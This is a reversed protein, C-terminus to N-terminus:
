AGGEMMENANQTQLTIAARHFILRNIIGAASKMLRRSQVGFAREKASKPQKGQEKKECDFSPPPKL